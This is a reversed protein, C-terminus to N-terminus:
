KSKDVFLNVEVNGVEMPESLDNVNNSMLSFLNMLEHEYEGVLGVTGVLELVELGFGINGEPNCARV